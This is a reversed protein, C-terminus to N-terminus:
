VSSHDLSLFADFKSSTLSGSPTYMIGLYRQIAGSPVKVSRKVGAASVAPFAQLTAITTGTSSISADAAKTVLTATVTVGAGVMATNVSVTLEVEGGEGIDPTLASGWTDKMLGGCLDLVNTSKVASSGSVSQADSFELKNDMIAM